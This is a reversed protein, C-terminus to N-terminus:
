TAVTAIPGARRRLPRMRREALCSRTQSLYCKRTFSATVTDSNQRPFVQGSLPLTALRRYHPPKSEEVALFPNSVQYGSSLLAFPLSAVKEVQTYLQQTKTKNTTKATSFPPPRTPSKQHPGRRSCTRRTLKEPCPRDQPMTTLYLLRLSLEEPLPMHHAALSYYSRRGTNSSTRKSSM